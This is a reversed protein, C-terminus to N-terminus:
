NALEAVIFKLLTKATALINPDKFFNLNEIKICIWVGVNDQSDNVKPIM